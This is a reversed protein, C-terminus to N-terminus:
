RLRRGIKVCFHWNEPMSGAEVSLGAVEYCITGVGNHVARHFSVFKPRLRASGVSFKHELLYPMSAFFARTQKDPSVFRGTKMDLVEILRGTWYPTVALGHSMVEGNRIKEFHEKRVNLHLTM